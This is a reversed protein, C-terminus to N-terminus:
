LYKGVDEFEGKWFRRCVVLSGEEVKEGTEMMKELDEKAVLKIEAVEETQLVPKFYTPIKGMFISNFHTERPFKALAKYLFVLKTDIGMEELLERHATIEESDGSKVHGAVSITWYGPFVKKQLSRKQLLVRNNEDFLIVGIERHILKPNTNAESKKVVGIVEDKENVLDLVEENTQLINQM